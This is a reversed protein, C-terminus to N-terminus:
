RLAVKLDATHAMVALKSLAEGGAVPRVNEEWARMVAERKETLRAYMEVPLGDETMFPRLAERIEDLEFVTKLTEIMVLAAIHAHTYFRKGRPPPMLGLRIYNQVMARTVAIGKKECFKMLQAITLTESYQHIDSLPDYM